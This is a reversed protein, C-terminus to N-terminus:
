KHGFRDRVWSRYAEDGVRREDLSAGDEGYIGDPVEAAPRGFLEKTPQMIRKTDGSLMLDDAEDSRATGVFVTGDELHTVMVKATM